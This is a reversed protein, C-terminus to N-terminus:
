IREEYTMNAPSINNFADIAIIITKKGGSQYFNQIWTNTNTSEITDLTKINFRRLGFCGDPCPSKSENNTM